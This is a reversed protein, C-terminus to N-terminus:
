WESCISFALMCCPQFFVVLAVCSAAICFVHMRVIIVKRRVKVKAGEMPMTVKRRVKVKAGKKRGEKADMPM